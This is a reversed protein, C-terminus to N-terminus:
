QDRVVIYDVTQELIQARKGFVELRGKARGALQLAREKAGALGLISVFTAKGLNEDKRAAKGMIAADGEVDLIDDTIQFLLGLDDSFKSLVELEQDDAGALLAGSMVAYSILAGTKLSQLETILSETRDAEDLTIDIVQGGIMGNSGSALALGQVLTLVKKSDANLTSMLEFGMTLLADGALVAIAEDFAKHVTPKGRRLDDDDMCPLDDHILSYVHVCELATAAQLVDPGPKEFLRNTEVMLFPRLRKGGGIAAYRMAEVIVAQHGDPQPLLNDLSEDIQSQIQRLSSTLVPATM